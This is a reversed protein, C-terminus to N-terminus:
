NDSVKEHNDIIRNLKKVLRIASQLEPPYRHISNRLANEQMSILELNEIRIDDPNKNKFVVIMGKKIPGYTQEWLLHHKLRWCRESVKIKWYGEKKVKREAGIPKHNKAARGNLQGPRFRSHCPVDKLPHCCGAMGKNWSVHGSKFAAPNVLERLYEPSKKLGLLSAKKQVSKKTHGVLLGLTQNDINAYRERLLDIEELTWYKFQNPM